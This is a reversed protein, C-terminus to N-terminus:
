FILLEGVEPRSEEEPVTQEGEKGEEKSGDAVEQATTQVPPVKKPVPKVLFILTRMCTSSIKAEQPPSLTPPVPLVKLQLM